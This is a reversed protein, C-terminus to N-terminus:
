GTAPRQAPSLRGPEGSPVLFGAHDILIACSVRDKESAMVNNQVFRDLLAFATAPDKRAAALDGVKRNALVVMQKLREGDSSAFARLGRALDYHLVLDWRGFIQGALFDALTGYGAAPDPGAPVLDQVNGHLVFVSATGSFYQEALSRAWSPYWAPLEASAREASLVDAASPSGTSATM